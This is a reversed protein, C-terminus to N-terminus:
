SSSRIDIIGEKINRTTKSVKRNKKDYYRGCKCM